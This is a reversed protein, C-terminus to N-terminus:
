IISSVVRPNKLVGHNINCFTSTAVQILKRTSRLWWSGLRGLWLLCLGLRGFDWFSPRPPESKLCSFGDSYFHNLVVFFSYWTGTVSNQQNNKRFSHPVGISCGSLILIEKLRWWSLFLRRSFITQGECTWCCIVWFCGWKLFCFWWSGSSPLIWVFLLGSRKWAWCCALSSDLNRRCFPLSDPQGFNKHKTKPWPVCTKKFRYTDRFYPVLSWKTWLEHQLFGLCCPPCPVCSHIPMM